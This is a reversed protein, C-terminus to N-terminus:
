IKKNWIYLMSSVTESKRKKYINTVIDTEM